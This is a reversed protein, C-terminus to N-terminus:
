VERIRQDGLAYIAPNASDDLELDQTAATAEEMAVDEQSASVAAQTKQKPPM